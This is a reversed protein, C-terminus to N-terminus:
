APAINAKRAEKIPAKSVIPYVSTDISSLRSTHSPPYASPCYASIKFSASYLSAICFNM